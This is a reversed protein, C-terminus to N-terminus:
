ITISQIQNFKFALKEEVWHASQLYDDDKASHGLVLNIKKMETLHIKLFSIAPSAVRGAHIPAYLTCLEYESLNISMEKLQVDKQSISHYGFYLYKFFGKPEYVTEIRALDAGQKQAYSSALAYAKGELSYVIVLEKKMHIEEKM